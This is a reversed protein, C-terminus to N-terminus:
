PDHDKLAAIHQTRATAGQVTELLAEPRADVEGLQVTLGAAVRIRIRADLLYETGAELFERAQALLGTDIRIGDHFPHPAGHAHRDGTLFFLELLAQREQSGDARGARVDAQKTGNPPDHVGEATQGSGLLGGQSGHCGTDGFCQNGSGDAQERRNRRNNGVVTESGATFDQDTTVVREGVLELGDQVTFHM